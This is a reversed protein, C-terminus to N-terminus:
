RKLFDDHLYQTFGNAFRMLSDKKPADSGYYFKLQATELDHYYGVEPSLFGWGEDRYFFAYQRNGFLNKAFPSPKPKWGMQRVLTPSLDTQMGIHDNVFATDVAGGIWLMPIKYTDPDTVTTPGPYLSTHDSTIIVLTNDWDPREKLCDLFRGLCSDSYAIANLYKSQSNDAPIRQFDPVDFPEHSSINYVMSFFPKKSSDLGKLMRDYLYQDPVGWEQMVAIEMPFNDVSVIKKVGSQMMLMRVNYFDADGGYYFSLDYGNRSFYSPLCDLEKMKDPFFLVSSVKLLAPYAAILSSIGKDSRNGTSYFSSFLIGQSCWKNLCPTIGPLGGLPDMVRNSFSELIILVVNVPQGNKAHIYIPSPDQGFQDVGRMVAILDSDDLYKVPNKDMSANLVAYMFTWCFNYASNNAYLKDSFCVMSQNLPSTDLSSRIPLMLAGSLLVMVLSTGLIPKPNLEVTPLFRKYLRYSVYVLTGNGLLILILQWWTVCALMGAPNGLYPLIQGNLRCGWSPYLGMDLMGFFSVPILLVLTYIRIVASLKKFSVFPTLILLIGPLMTFYGAMSLDMRTGYFFVGFLDTAGLKLTNGVNATLFVVKLVLFFLSWFIYYKLFFLVTKKM